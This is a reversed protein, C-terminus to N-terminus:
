VDPPAIFIQGMDIDSAALCKFSQQCHISTCLTLISITRTRVLTTSTRYGVAVIVVVSRAATSPTRRVVVARLRTLETVSRAPTRGNTRGVAVAAIDCAALSAGSQSVICFCTLHTVM